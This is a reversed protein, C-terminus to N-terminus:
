TSCQNDTGGGLGLRAVSLGHNAGYFNLDSLDPLPWYGAVHRRVDRDGPSWAFRQARGKYVWTLPGDGAPGEDMIMALTPLPPVGTAYLAWRPVDDDVIVNAIRRQRAQAIRRAHSVHDDFVALPRDRPDFELALDMWDSAVYRVSPERHRLNSPDVDFSLIEAEPCAQRLLWASHGRFTGSDIVVRPRMQRALVFLWLSKNFGMGGKNDRIPRARYLDLFEAVAATADLAVESAPTVARLLGAVRRSAAAVVHGREAASTMYGDDAIRVPSHPEIDTASLSQKM